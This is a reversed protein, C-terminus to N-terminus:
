YYELTRYTIVRTDFGSKATKFVELRKIWNRQADFEYSYSTTSYLDGKLDLTAREIAEGDDNYKWKTQDEIPRDDKDFCASQIVNEKEDYISRIKEEISGDDDYKYLLQEELQGSPGYEYVYRRSLTGDEERWLEDTKNDAHDYTMRSRQKIILGHAQTSVCGLLKGADDYKYVLSRLLGGRPNQFVVEKKQGQADYKTSGVESLHGDLDYRLDKVVCGNENFAITNLPRRAQEVWRRSSELVNAVESHISKVRGKLNQKQWDNRKNM